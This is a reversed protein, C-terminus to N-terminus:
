YTWAIWEAQIRNRLLFVVTSRHESNPVTRHEESGLAPGPPVDMGVIESRFLWAILTARLNNSQRKRTNGTSTRDFFFSAWHRPLLEDVSGGRIMRPDKASRFLWYHEEALHDAGSPTSTPVNSLQLLASFMYVEIFQESGAPPTMEFGSVDGNSSEIKWVFM